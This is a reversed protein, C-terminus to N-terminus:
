PIPAPSTPTTPAFSCRSAQSSTRAASASREKRTDTISYTAVIYDVEGNQILTERQASPSEKFTIGEPKVGLENAIYRAVEVDFGSFTGDPNRQGLGPQDFKIGVTLTGDSASETISKNEEGGGCATAAFAIAMIGIGFRVSRNIKM